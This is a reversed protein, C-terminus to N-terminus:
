LSHSVSFFPDMSYVAIQNEIDNILFIFVHDEKISLFKVDNRNKRSDHKM